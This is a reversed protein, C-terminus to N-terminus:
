ESNLIDYLYEVFPRRASRLSYPKTYFHLFFVDRQPPLSHCEFNAWNYFYEGSREYLRLAPIQM